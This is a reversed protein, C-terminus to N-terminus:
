WGSTSEAAASVRRGAPGTQWIGLFWVLDFGREAWEDLQQDPVDDLTAARASEAALQTLYVCTNVRYLSPYRSYRM